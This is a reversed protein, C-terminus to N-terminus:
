QKFTRTKSTRRKKQIPPVYSQMLIQWFTLCIGVKKSFMHTALRSKRPFFFCETSHKRTVIKHISEEVHCLTTLPESKDYGHSTNTFTYQKHKYAYTRTYIHKKKKNTHIYPHTRTHKYTPSPHAHAYICLLASIM